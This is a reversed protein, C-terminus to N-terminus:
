LAIALQTPQCEAATTEQLWGNDAAWSFVVPAKCGCKAQLMWRFTNRVDECFRPGEQEPSTSAQQLLEADPLSIM